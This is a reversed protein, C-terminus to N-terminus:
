YGYNSSRLIYSRGIRYLIWCLPSLSPQLSLFIGEKFYIKRLNWLQGGVKYLVKNNFYHSIFSIPDLVRRLTCKHLLPIVSSIAIIKHTTWKKIQHLMSSYHIKRIHKQLLWCSIRCYLFFNSKNKKGGM